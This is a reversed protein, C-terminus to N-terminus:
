LRQWVGSDEVTAKRALPYPTSDSTHAIEYGLPAAMFVALDGRTAAAAGVRARFM